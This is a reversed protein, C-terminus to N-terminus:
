TLLYYLFALMLVFSALKIFLNKYKISNQYLDYIEAEYQEIVKDNTDLNIIEKKYNELSKDRLGWWCLLGGSPKVKRHPQVIALICLLASVASLIQLLKLHSSTSLTFIIGSVALLFNAKYDFANRLGYNIDLSKELFRLKIEDSM